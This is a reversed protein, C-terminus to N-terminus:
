IISPTANCPVSIWLYNNSHIDFSTNIAQAPTTVAGSCQETSEKPSALLGEALLFRTYFGFIGSLTWFLEFGNMDLVQYIWQVDKYGIESIRKLIITGNIGLLKKRESWYIATIQKKNIWKKYNNYAGSVTIIFNDFCTPSLFMYIIDKHIWSHVQIIINSLNYCPVCHVYLTVNLRMWAATTTTTSFCYTNCIRLM